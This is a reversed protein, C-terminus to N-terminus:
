FSAFTIGSVGPGWALRARYSVLTWLPGWPRWSLGAWSSGFSRHRIAPVLPPWCERCDVGAHLLVRQQEPLDEGVLLPHIVAGRPAETTGLGAVIIEGELGDRGSIEAEVDPGFDACGVALFQEAEAVSVDVIAVLDVGSSGDEVEVAIVLDPDLGVGLAASDGAFVDAATDEASEQEEGAYFSSRGSFVEVQQIFPIPQEAWM